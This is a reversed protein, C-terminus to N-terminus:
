SPRAFSVGDLHYRTRSPTGSAIKREMSNAIGGFPHCSHRVSSAGGAQSQTFSGHGYDMGSARRRRRVNYTAADSAQASSEVPAVAQAVVAGGVDTDVMSLAGVLADPAAVSGRGVVDVTEPSVEDMGPVSEEPKVEDGVVASVLM